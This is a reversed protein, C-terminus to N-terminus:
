MEKILNVSVTDSFVKDNNGTWEVVVFADNQLTFASDNNQIVDIVRMPISSNKLTVQANTEKLFNAYENPTMDM